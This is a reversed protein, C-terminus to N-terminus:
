LGIKLDLTGGFFEALREAEEEVGRRAWSPVKGFPEITVEVRRGKVEHRWVGQMLGNVLLVPSIWGQPRYIRNRPVGPLLREAHGSAQVVYQDFGPLLNVKRPVDSGRLERLDAALMWRKEGEIEVASVEDGLTAMWQRANAVGGGGWWRALEHLTAPGYAALYRRTIAAYAAGPDHPKAKPLWTKPHTFRVLQGASPGFCLAGGFAAPKLITGWSSAAIKKAFAAGTLRGVKKILEERTLVSGNLAAAIAETLREMEDMTMGFRRWIAPRSYRPNDRLAAHWLPMENAPLLHLTGRMAWTKVLTREEWLARQVANRELGEVRAWLTLEACSLVQAHLGCLRGAVALISGAPARRDLHQRRIRWAAVQPWALKPM